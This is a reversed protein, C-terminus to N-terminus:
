SSSGNRINPMIKIPTDNLARLPDISSEIITKTETKISNIPHLDEIENYSKSSKDFSQVISIDVINPALDEVATEVSHEVTDVKSNESLGTAEDDDKACVVDISNTSTTVNNAKSDGPIYCKKSDLYIAHGLTVM